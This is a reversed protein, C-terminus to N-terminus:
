FVWFGEIEIRKFKIESIILSYDLATNVFKFLLHRILFKANAENIRTSLEVKSISETDLYKATGFM